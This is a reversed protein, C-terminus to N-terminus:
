SGSLESGALCLLRNRFPPSDPLEVSTFLSLFSAQQTRQLPKKLRAGGFFPNLGPGPRNKCSWRKWNSAASTSCKTKSLIHLGDLESVAFTVPAGVAQGGVLPTRPTRAKHSRQAM